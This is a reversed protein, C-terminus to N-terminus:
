SLFWKNKAKELCQGMYEIKSFHRVGFYIQISLPGNKEFFIPFDAMKDVRNITNKTNKQM